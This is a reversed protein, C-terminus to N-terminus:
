LMSLQTTQSLSDDGKDFCEPPPQRIQALECGGFPTLCLLGVLPSPVHFNGGGITLGLHLAAQSPASLLLQFSHHEPVPRVDRHNRVTRCDTSRHSQCIVTVVFSLCPFQVSGLCAVNSMALLFERHQVMVVSSQTRNTSSQIPFFTDIGAVHVSPNAQNRPSPDLDTKLNRQLKQPIAGTHKAGRSERPIRGTTESLQIVGLCPNITQGNESQVQPKQTKHVAESVKQSHSKRVPYVTHNVVCALSNASRGAEVFVQPHHLLLRIEAFNWQRPLGFCDQRPRVLFPM